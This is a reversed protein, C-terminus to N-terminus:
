ENVETCQQKEVKGLERKEEAGGFSRIIVISYGDFLFYHLLAKEKEEEKDGEKLKPTIYRM